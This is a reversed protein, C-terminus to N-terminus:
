EITLSTLLYIPKDYQHNNSMSCLQYNRTQLVPDRRTSSAIRPARRYRLASCVSLFSIHANRKLSSVETVYYGKVYDM